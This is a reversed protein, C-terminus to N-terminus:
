QIKRSEHSVEVMLFQWECSESCEPLPLISNEERDRDPLAGMARDFYEGAGGCINVGMADVSGFVFERSVYRRGLHSPLLLAEEVLVVGGGDNILM